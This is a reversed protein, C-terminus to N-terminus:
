NGRYVTVAMIPLLFCRDQAGTHVSFPSEAKARFDPCLAGIHSKSKCVECEFSLKIERGFYEGAVHGCRPCTGCVRLAKCQSVRAKHSDFIFIFIAVLCPFDM